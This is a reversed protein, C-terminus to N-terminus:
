AIETIDPDHMDHGVRIETKGNTTVISIDWAQMTEAGVLFERRLDPSVFARTSVMKGGVAIIVNTIGTVTIQGEKAATGFTEPSKYRLIQTGPPLIDDRIVTYFAGSDFLTKTHFEVGETTQVKVDIVPKGM